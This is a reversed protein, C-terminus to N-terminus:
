KEDLIIKPMLRNAKTKKGAFDGIFVVDYGKESNAEIEFLDDEGEEIAVLYRQKILAKEKKKQADDVFDGKIM